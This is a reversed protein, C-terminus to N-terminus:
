ETFTAYCNSFVKRIELWAKGNYVGENSVHNNCINRDLHRGKYTVSISWSNNRLQKM